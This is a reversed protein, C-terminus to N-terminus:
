NLEANVIAALLIKRIQVAVIFAESVFYLDHGLRHDMQPQTFKVPMLCVVKAHCIVFTASHNRVYPILQLGYFFRFDPDANM